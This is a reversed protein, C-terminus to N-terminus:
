AAAREGISTLADPSLYWPVARGTRRVAAAYRCRAAHEARVAVQIEAVSAASELAAHLQRVCTQWRDRADATMTPRRNTRMGPM